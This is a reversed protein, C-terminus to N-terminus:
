QYSKSKNNKLTAKTLFIDFTNYSLQCGVNIILITEKM